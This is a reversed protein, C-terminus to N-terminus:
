AKNQLAENNLESGWRFTGKRLDPVKDKREEIGGLDVHLM